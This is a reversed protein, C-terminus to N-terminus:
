NSKNCRYFFCCRTKIKDVSLIVSPQYNKGTIKLLNFSQMTEMIIANHAFHVKTRNDHFFLGYLQM